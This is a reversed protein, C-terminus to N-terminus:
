SEWEDCNLKSAWATGEPQQKAGLRARSVYIVNDKSKRMHLSDNASILGASSSCREGERVCSCFCLPSPLPHRLCIKLQTCTTQQIIAAVERAGTKFVLAPINSCPSSFLSARHFLCGCLAQKRSCRRLQAAM